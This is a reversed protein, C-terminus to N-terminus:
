KKTPETEVPSKEASDKEPPKITNPLKKICMGEFSKTRCALGQQTRGKGEYSVFCRQCSGNWCLRSYDIQYELFQFVRLLELRDSVEHKVGNIDLDIFREIHGFLREDYDKSM